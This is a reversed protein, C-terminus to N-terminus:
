IVEALVEYFVGSGIIGGIDPSTYLQSKELSPGPLTSASAHKPQRPFPNVLRQRAISPKRLGSNRSAAKM